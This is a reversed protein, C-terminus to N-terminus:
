APVAEPRRALWGVIAQAAREPADAIHAYVRSVSARRAAQVEPPDALAAGVVRVLDRPSDCELGVGAEDWFRLGHDVRGRSRLWGTRNLLVVPRGTAAFEWITSSNDCVYVHAQRCVESFDEVFPIGWRRYFESPPKSYRGSIWRPHQHGIVRYHKALERIAESDRYDDWATGALGMGILAPAPWHFSLAVTPEAGVASPLSPLKPCGVVASEAGPYRARWRAAVTESPCLFIGVDEHDPGGSYSAALAGSGPGYAQGAGHELFAFPGYGLRRAVKVDGISAVLCPQGDQVPQQQPTRRVADADLEEYDLGLRQARGALAADIVLHGRANAELARWVPAIHDLFQPETALADIM